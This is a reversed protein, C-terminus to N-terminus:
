VMGRRRRLFWESALLAVLVALVAECRAYRFQVQSKKSVVRLPLGQALPELDNWVVMFGGSRSAMQKLEEVRSTTSLYEVSWRTVTFRGTDTSAVGRRPMAEAVFEYDGEVDATTKAEYRGAGAEELVLEKSGAPGSVKARVQAGELPNLDPGFLQGVFTVTEGSRYFERDTRVHFLKQEERLSLWRVSNKVFTLFLSNDKGIGWMMLDWRWFGSALLAVSRSEPTQRAVILPAGKTARASPEAGFALVEADPWLPVDSFSLIVPPLEEWAAANAPGSEAIATLPHFPADQMRVTRLEPGRLRPTGNLPLSDWLTALREFDIGEGGAWFLPLHRARIAGAVQAVLAADSETAPFDVLLACDAERLAQVLSQASARYFGGGKRCVYIHAAVNADAELAKGLFVVDHSPRGALLVVKIKSALAKVVFEARNNEYTQEGPLHSVTVVYRRAGPADPRFRLTVQTEPQSAALPVIRRDLVRGATQLEVVLNAQDFGRNLLRVEVPVESGVYTVENALASHVILDRPPNSSGVAVPFLPWASKEGLRVLREGVNAAGDTAIVVGAVPQGRLQEALDRLAAELNTALGDFRLTDQGPQFEGDLGSSFLYFPMHARAALSHLQSSGLVTAVQQPRAGSDDVLGMSGSRDVLVPLLPKERKSLLLELVPQFVLLIVGALSLARLCLLTQRLRNSVVPNTRRYVLVTCLVAVLLALLLLVTSGAVELRVSALSWHGM